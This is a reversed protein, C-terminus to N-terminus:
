EGLCGANGSVWGVRLRFGLMDLHCRFVKLLQHLLSLLVVVKRVASGRVRSVSKALAGIVYYLDSDAVGRKLM